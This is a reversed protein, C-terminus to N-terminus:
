LGSITGEGPPVNRYFSPPVSRPSPPAAGSGHSKLVDLVKVRELTHCVVLVADHYQSLKVWTPIFDNVDLLAVNANQATFYHLALKSNEFNVAPDRKGGCLYVPAVPKWGNLLDNKALDIRVASGPDDLLDKALSPQLLARSHLPLTTGALQNQQAYTEVPLLTDIWKAYPNRFAQTPDDYLNAYVKEFGPLAYAFVVSAERDLDWKLWLTTSYPGSDPSSAVVDFESPEDAEVARQTAMISHGGQSYGTLFVKGSLSVHLTNAAHRIARMADIVASAESNAVLYPQYPYTSSGLGLYETAAIAYGHGAFIASLVVPEINKKTPETIKMAKAVNTGQAYGILLFPGSCGKGPVYFGANADAPEGHAGITEYRVSYISVDCKPAGGLATITPGAIGGGMQAKTVYATREISIVSGRAPTVSSTPAVTPSSSITSSCAALAFAFLVAIPLRSFSM